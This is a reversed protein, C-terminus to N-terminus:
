LAPNAEDRGAEPVGLVGQVDVKTRFYSLVQSLVFTSEYKLVFTSEYSLVKLTSEYSFVKSPVTSIISTSEYFVKSSLLATHTSYM